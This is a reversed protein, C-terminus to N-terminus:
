EWVLQWTIGFKDTVWAVKRIGLVPEPGMMVFGESSLASFIHDFEREDRCQMLFSTAWSFPTVQGKQIDMFMIQEGMISLIGNIVKGEEGPQGAQYYDLSTISTEPLVLAYFNMAAEASGDFTLFPTLRKHQM